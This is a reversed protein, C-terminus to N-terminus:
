FEPDRLRQEFGEVLIVRDSDLLDSRCAPWGKEPDELDKLHFWFFLNRKVDEKWNRDRGVLFLNRGLTAPGTEQEDRWLPELLDILFIRKAVFHVLFAILVIVGASLLGLLIVAPPVDIDDILSLYLAKRAPAKASSAVSSLEIEGRPYDRSHF